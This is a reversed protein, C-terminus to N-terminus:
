KHIIMTWKIWIKNTCSWTTKHKETYLVMKQKSRYSWPEQCLSTITAPYWRKNVPNLYMVSQGIHFDHTPLHETKNSVRLQESGLGQQIRAASSMPLQTRATQSQLIQLPSQLKHSLPTNRYIMLSKYLDTDEEKAKYFLNKMIQVYKEALGDSQPYFLSSTIHNVNYDAMLKTFTEALYCPGKDSVITEPWSYESFILKMQSAVQQAMTSMLKHVIPFRSIYDVILLYSENEFHFIDTAVKTWPHITVEQGLSMNPAQKSKANSYKFCLESNLVLKKLQDNIGLWYVMDKCWLKCKGLGLHGKHMMVLIQKHKNNPIVIWTGKLILGDEITLGEWFTWYVQKESPVEKISNPWGNTIMYKLLILEDDEQTATCLQNLTDSRVKLQSTIQYVYIKPLKISDNQNWLRLLCDALQNIPGSIHHLTFHYPFTWILIRQLWPMVQNLSKSLIAELPKQHMELIFHTGYLFHHFKEM